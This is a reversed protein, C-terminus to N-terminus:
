ACGHSRQRQSCGGLLNRSCSRTSIKQVEFDWDEKVRLNVFIPWSILHVRTNSSEKGWVCRRCLRDIGKLVGVPMKMLQMHFVPLSNLISSALTIRGAKSLCRIKWGSFCQTAKQLVEQPNINNRGGHVLRFGLYKGLNTTRPVDLM